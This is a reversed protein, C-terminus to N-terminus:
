YPSSSQSITLVTLCVHSSPVYQNNQLNQLNYSQRVRKPGRASFSRVIELDDGNETDKKSEEDKVKRNRRGGRSSIRPKVHDPAERRGNLPTRRESDDIRTPSSPFSLSISPEAPVPTSMASGVGSGIGSFMRAFENKIGPESAPGRMRGQAGQVAQPLPSIRGGRKANDVMLGLLTRPQQTAEEFNGNQQEFRDPTSMYQHRRFQTSPVPSQRLPQEEMIDNSEPRQRRIQQPFESVVYQTEGVAQPKGIQRGQAGIELATRSAPEFSREQHVIQGNPPHQEQAAANHSSRSLFPYNMAPADHAQESRSSQVAISQPQHISRNNIGHRSGKSMSDRQRAFTTQGRVTSIMGDELKKSGVLHVEASEPSIPARELDGQVERPPSQFGNYQKIGDHELRGISSRRIEPSRLEIGSVGNVKSLQHSATQNLLPLDQPGPRGVDPSHVPFGTFPRPPPGGSYARSRAQDGRWTSYSDPTHARKTHHDSQYASHPPSIGRAIHNIPSPIPHLPQALFGNNRGSLLVDRSTKENDGGLMSSISMSSGPRHAASLAPLDRAFPFISPPGRPAQSQNIYQASVHQPSTPPLM